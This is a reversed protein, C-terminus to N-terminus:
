KKAPMMEFRTVRERLDSVDIQLQNVSSQLNNIQETKMKDREEMRVLSERINNITNFGGIIAVTIVSLLITQIHKELTYEKKVAKIEEMISNEEKM